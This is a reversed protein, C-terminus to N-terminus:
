LINIISKTIMKQKMIPNHFKELTNVMRGKRTIHLGEMIDEMPRNSHKNHLSKQALKSKGNGYNLDRFTRPIKYSPAALRDL